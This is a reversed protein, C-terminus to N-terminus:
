KMMSITEGNPAVNPKYQPEKPITIESVDKVAHLTQDVIIDMGQFTFYGYFCQDRLMYPFWMHDDPWMKPFPINDLNYWEPRMETFFYLLMFTLFKPIMMVDRSAFVNSARDWRVQRLLLAM